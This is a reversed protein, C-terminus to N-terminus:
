EIEADALGTEHDAGLVHRVLSDVDEPGFAMSDKIMQRITEYAAAPKMSAAFFRLHSAMKIAECPRRPMEFTIM